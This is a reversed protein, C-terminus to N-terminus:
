RCTNKEYKSNEEFKILNPEEDLISLYQAMIGFKGDPDLKMYRKFKRKRDVERSWGFHKVRLDSLHYSYHYAQTPFSGCHQAMNRFSYSEERKNRVIFLRWNLHARWLEDERYESENWFDYEHFYIADKDTELLKNMQGVVRDEFIQDADLILIWEPNLKLSEKWQLSRLVTENAFLSVENVIIKHPFDALIEQCIKVTEDTSADDIILIFDAYKKASQLCDRLFGDAEDRIVMSLLLNIKKM